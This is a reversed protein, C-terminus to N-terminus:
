NKEDETICWGRMRTPHWVISMSKEKIQAKQARTKKYVHWMILGDDDCYDDDDHLIKVQGQTLFWDTVDQLSFPDKTVAADCMKKTKFHDPVYASSWPDVAVAKICM